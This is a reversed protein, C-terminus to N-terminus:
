RNKLYDEGYYQWQELTWGAPIGEEPIPPYIETSEEQHTEEPEAREFDLLEGEHGSGRDAGSPTEQRRSLYLGGLTGGGIFVVVILFYLVMTLPSIESSGGTEEAQSEQEEEDVIDSEDVDPGLDISDVKFNGDSERDWSDGDLARVFLTLYDGVAM